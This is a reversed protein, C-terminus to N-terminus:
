PSGAAPGPVPPRGPPAWKVFVSPMDWRTAQLGGGRVAEGRVVILVGEVLREDRYMTVCLENM